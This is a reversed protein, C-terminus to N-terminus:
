NDAKFFNDFFTRSEWADLSGFREEAAHVLLEESIKNAKGDSCAGVKRLQLFATPFAM